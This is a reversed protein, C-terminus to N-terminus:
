RAPFCIVHQGTRPNFHIFPLFIGSIESKPLRCLRTFREPFARPSFSTGAPMNFTRGHRDMIQSLSKIEMAAATIKDKRMMLIFNGLGLAARIALKDIVPQVVSKNSDIGFFHTLRQIIEEESLIHQLRIRSIREAIEEQGNM